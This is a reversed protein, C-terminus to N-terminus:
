WIRGLLLHCVDMNVIDCWVEDRYKMGVFFSIPRTEFGNGRWRAEITYDQITKQHKSTKISLKQM